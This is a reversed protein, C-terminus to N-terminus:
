PGLIRELGLQCAQRISEPTLGRTPAITSATRIPDSLNAFLHTALQTAKRVQAPPLSPLLHDLWERSLDELRPAFLQLTDHIYLIDKARDAIPRNAHILLKQVLYATPNAIRISKGTTLPFTPASLLLTWPNVLLIELHRLLQASLGAIGTTTRRAGSRTTRAGTLPTLFEAYFAGSENGLRYHTAPPVDQGLFDETFGQAILLQRLDPLDAPLMPPLAIDADLTLLPEFNTSQANPHLHYLRHAWGGIFVIHPLAPALAGVLRAFSQRASDEQPLM